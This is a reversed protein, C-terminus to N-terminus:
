SYIYTADTCKCKEYVSKNIKKLHYYGWLWLPIKPSAKGYWSLIIM